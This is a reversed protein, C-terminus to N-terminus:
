RQTQSGGFQKDKRQLITKKVPTQRVEHLYENNATTTIGSESIETGVRKSNEMQHNSDSKQKVVKIQWVTKSKPKTTSLKDKLERVFQPSEECIMESDPETKIEEQRKSIDENFPTSHTDSREKVHVESRKDKNKYVAQREPQEKSCKGKGKTDREEPLKFYRYEKKNEGVRESSVAYSEKESEFERNKWKIKGKSVESGSIQQALSESVEHHMDRDEGREKKTEFPVEKEHEDESSGETSAVLHLHSYKKRIADALKSEDVSIKRLATDIDKWTLVNRKKLRIALIQLLRDGPDSEKMEVSEIESINVGIQLALKRYKNRAPYLAEYLVALDDECLIASSPATGSSGTAMAKYVAVGKTFHALSFTIIGYFFTIHGLRDTGYFAGSPLSWPQPRLLPSPLLRRSKRGSSGKENM